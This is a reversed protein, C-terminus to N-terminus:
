AGDNGGPEAFWLRELAQSDLGQPDLSAVPVSGKDACGSEDRLVLLMWALPPGLNRDYCPSLRWIEGFLRVCLAAGAKGDGGVLRLAVPYLWPGTCQVLSRLADRDGGAM